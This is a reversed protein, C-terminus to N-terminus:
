KYTEYSECLLCRSNGYVDDVTQNKYCLLTRWTGYFVALKKVLQPVIASDYNSSGELCRKPGDFCCLSFTMRKGPANGAARKQSHIM